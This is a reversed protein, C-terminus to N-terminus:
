CHHQQHLRQHHQQLLHQHQHQLLHQHHHQLLHQIGHLHHHQLLHQIGHLHHHQFLHQHLRHHIIMMSLFQHNQLKLQRTGHLILFSPPNNQKKPRYLRLGLRVLLYIKKMRKLIYSVSYKQNIREELGFRSSYILCESYLRITM